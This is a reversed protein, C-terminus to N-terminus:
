WARSGPGGRCARARARRRCSTQQPPMTPMPSIARAARRGARAARSSSGCGSDTGILWSTCTSPVGSAPVPAARDTRTRACSRPRACGIGCAITRRDAPRRSIPSAPAPATSGRRRWSSRRCEASQHGMRRRHAVWTASCATTSAAATESSCRRSRRSTTRAPASRSARCCCRIKFDKLSAAQKMVNERTLNDGCQKLVQVLTQAVTYGYVNFNDTLDGDPYYKEM